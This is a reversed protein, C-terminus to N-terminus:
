KESLLSNKLEDSSNDWMEQNFKKLFEGLVRKSQDDMNNVIVRGKLSRDMNNVHEPM